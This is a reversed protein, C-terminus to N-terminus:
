AADASGSSPSSLLADIWVDIAERVFESPTVGAQAAIREVKARQGHSLRITLREHYEPFRL